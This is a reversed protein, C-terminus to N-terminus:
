AAGADNRLLAVAVEDPAMTIPRLTRTIGTMGLEGKLAWADGLRRVVANRSPAKLVPRRVTDAWAWRPREYRYEYTGDAREFVLLWRRARSPARRSLVPGPLESVGSRHVFVAIAGHERVELRQHARKDAELLANWEREWLSAHDDLNAILAGLRPLTDSYSQADSGTAMANIAMALRLGRDDDPWEDFDSAEAAATILKSHRIAVEPELLAFVALVGDADFHNNAIQSGKPVGREALRLAIETSTDAKLEAPTRNGAWHSADLWAGEVLGDCAIACDPAKSGFPVFTFPAVDVQADSLGLESRLVAPLLM